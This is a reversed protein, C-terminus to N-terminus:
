KRSKNLLRSHKKAPIRSPERDRRGVHRNYKEEIVIFKAYRFRCEKTNLNKSKSDINASVQVSLQSRKENEYVPLIDIM